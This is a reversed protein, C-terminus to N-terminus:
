AITRIIDEILQKYLNKFKCNEKTKVRCNVCTPDKGCTGVEVKLQDILDCLDQDDDTDVDDVSRRTHRRVLEPDGNEDPLFGTVTDLTKSLKLRSFFYLIKFQFQDKSFLGRGSRFLRYLEFHFVALVCDVIELGNLNFYARANQSSEDMLLSREIKLQNVQEDSSKLFFLRLFNINDALKKIKVVDALSIWNAESAPIKEEHYFSSSTENQEHLKRQCLYYYQIFVEGISLNKQGILTPLTGIQKLLHTKKCLCKLEKFDFVFATKDKSILNQDLNMAFRDLMLNEQFKLYDTGLVEVNSYQSIDVIMDFFSHFDIGYDRLVMEQIRKPPKKDGTKAGKEVYPLVDVLVWITINVQIPQNQQKFYIFGKRMILKLLPLVDKRPNRVVVISHDNVLLFPIVTSPDHIVPFDVIKVGKSKLTKM